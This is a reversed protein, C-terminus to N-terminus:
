PDRQGPALLVANHKVARCSLRTSRIANKGEKIWQEATVNCGGASQV